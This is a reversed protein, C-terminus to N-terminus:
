FLQVRHNEFDSVALRGDPLLDIGHPLKLLGPRCGRGGFSCYLEGDPRYVQVTNTGICCVSVYGEHDVTIGVPYIDDNKGFSRLFQGQQSFVCVCHLDDTVFVHNDPGGITIYWPKELYRAGFHRVYRGYSDFVSVRNADKDVVFINGGYCTVGYIRMFKGEGDGHGGFRGEIKDDSISYIVFENSVETIVLNERVSDYAIDIPDGLEGDHGLCGRWNGDTDYIKVRRTDAVYLLNTKPCFKIGCPEYLKENGAANRGGIITKWGRKKDKYKITPTSAASAPQEIASVFGSCATNSVLGGAADNTCSTDPSAVKPIVAACTVDSGAACSVGTDDSPGANNAGREASLTAEATANANEVTSPTKGEVTSSTIRVASATQSAEKQAGITSDSENGSSPQSSNLAPLLFDIAGRKLQGFRRASLSFGDDGTFQFNSQWDSAALIEFIRLYEDCKGRLKEKEEATEARATMEEIDRYLQDSGLSPEVSHIMLQQVKQLVDFFESFAQKRDQLERIHCDIMNEMRVKQAHLNGKSVLWIHKSRELKEIIDHSSVKSELLKVAEEVHKLDGCVVQNMELLNKILFNDRFERVDGNPIAHNERCQPCNLTPGSSQSLSILCSECFTHQCPLM